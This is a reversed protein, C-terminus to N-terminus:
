ELLNIEKAYWRGSLPGKSFRKPKLGLSAMAEIIQRSNVIGGYSGRYRKNLEDSKVLLLIEGEDTAYYGTQTDDPTRMSTLDDGGPVIKMRGVFKHGNNTWVAMATQLRSLNGSMAEILDEVQDALGGSGGNREEVTSRDTLYERLGRTIGNRRRADNQQGEWVTRWSWFPFTRDLIIAGNTDQVIKRAVAASSQLIVANLPVVKEDVGDPTKVPILLEILEEDAKTIYKLSWDCAWEDIRDPDPKTPDLLPDNVLKIGSRLLWASFSRDDASAVGTDDTVVSAAPDTALEKEALEKHFENTMYTQSSRFLTHVEDESKPPDCVMLNAGMLWMWVQDIAEQDEIGNVGWIQFAKRWLNNAEILLSHHRAGLGIKGQPSRFKRPDTSSTTGSSSSETKTWEECLYQRIHDPLPTLPIDSLSMGDLWKYQAGSMHMSPPAVSQTEKGKGGFRFELGKITMNAVQPLGESWRYLRHLSKGSTYTPCPYDCLIREAFMRGEPSDDEIDIIAKDAPIGHCLGLIIGVNWQDVSWQSEIVDSDQTASKGWSHGVPHKGQAKCESKGCSCYVTGARFIPYHLRVPYMGFSTLSLVDASIVPM